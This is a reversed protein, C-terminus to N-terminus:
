GATIREKYLSLLREADVELCVNTPPGELWQKRPDPITDGSSQGETEIFVPMQECHFLTPDIAYAIASPDHTHISGGLGVHKDFYAQYFPLIQSILRTAPNKVAFLSELFAPTMITRQTVDLGVMTLPWGASFVIAAAHPDNTINAESAPTANGRAYASGGMIIVEKVLQPLRPELLVAAAINTLPGVPVLTIEGPNATVMDVILKAAPIPQPKGKPLPQHTNGMGDDGHVFTALGRLPQVLPKGAGGAVPIQGHGELEVLRLANLTTYDVSTNGFVTTLAVVELEPSRLAFLIAMTDDIGPDTDILIKKPM